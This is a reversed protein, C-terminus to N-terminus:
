LNKFAKDLAEQNIADEEDSNAYYYKFLTETKSHGSRNKLVAIPINTRAMKTLHTKRFTYFSFDEVGEEHPCITEKIIKSYKKFSGAMYCYNGNDNISILDDIFITSKSHVDDFVKTMSNFVPNSEKIKEIEQMRNKVANLLADPVVVTRAFTKPQKYIFHTKEQIIQKNIRLKKNTFDFDSFRIAFAEAPRAGSYLSVLYPLYMPTDRLLKDIQKIQEDSLARIKETYKKDKQIDSKPYKLKSFRNLADDPLLKNNEIYGLLLLFFKYISVLYDDSYKHSVGKIQYTGDTQKTKILGVIDNVTIESFPMNGFAIKEGTFPRAIEYNKIHNNYVSTYKTLTAPAKAIVSADNKCAEWFEDLTKNEYESPSLPLGKKKAEAEKKLRLKENSGYVVLKNIDTFRKGKNDKVIETDIVNHIKLRYLYYLKNEFTYSYINAYNPVKKKNEM